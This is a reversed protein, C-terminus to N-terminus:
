SAFLYSGSTDQSYEPLVHSTWSICVLPLSVPVVLLQERFIHFNLSSKLTWSLIFVLLFISFSWFFVFHSGPCESNMSVLSFANVHSFSSQWDSPHDTQMSCLFRRSCFVTSVWLTLVSCLPPTLNLSKLCPFSSCVSFFFLLTPSSCM